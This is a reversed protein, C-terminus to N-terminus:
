QHLDKQRKNGTFNHTARKTHVATAPKSCAEQWTKAFLAIQLHKSSSRIKSQPSGVDLSLHLVGVQQLWQELCLYFPFVQLTMLTVCVLLGRTLQWIQTVLIFGDWFRQVIVPEQLPRLFEVNKCQCDCYRASNNKSQWRHAQWRKTSKNALNGEDAEFSGDDSM